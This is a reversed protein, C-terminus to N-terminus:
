SKIPALCNATPSILAFDHSTLQALESSTNGSGGMKFLAPRDGDHRCLERGQSLVFTLLMIKNTQWEHCKTQPTWLILMLFQQEEQSIKNFQTRTQRDTVDCQLFYSIPWTQSSPDCSNIQQKAWTTQANPDAVQHNDTGFPDPSTVNQWNRGNNRPVARLGNCNATRVLFFSHYLHTFCM